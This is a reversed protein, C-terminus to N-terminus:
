LSYIKILYADYTSDINSTFSITASSSATQTQLLTLVGASISAPLSTIASLSNNNAFNLAM